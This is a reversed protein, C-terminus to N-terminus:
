RLRAEDNKQAPNKAPTPGFNLEVPAGGSRLGRCAAFILAVGCGAKM